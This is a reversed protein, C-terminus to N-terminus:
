WARWRRASRCIAVPSTTWAPREPRRRRPLAGRPVYDDVLADFTLMPLVMAVRSLAAIRWVPPVGTAKTAMAATLACRASTTPLFCAVVTSGVIARAAGFAADRRNKVRNRRPDFGM